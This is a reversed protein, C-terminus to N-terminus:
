REAALMEEVVGALDAADVTEVVPGGGVRRVERDTRDACYTELLDLQEVDLDEAPAAIWLRGDYTDLLDLGHPEDALRAVAAELLARRPLREWGTDTQTIHRELYPRMQAGPVTSTAWHARARELIDSLYGELEAPSGTAYLGYRESWVEFAELGITEAWEQRAEEGRRPTSVSVLLVGACDLDALASAGLALLEDTELVLLPRHLGLAAVTAALDPVFGACGPDGPRGTVRTRGHGPLDIAVPHASRALERGLPEWVLANSGLQHLLLVDPGAGGHDVVAYSDGDVVVAAEGRMGTM